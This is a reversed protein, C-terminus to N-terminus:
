YANKGSVVVYITRLVIYIDLVPTWNRLYELDYAIRGAMKDLTDTEGRFGHIQAWGTLGPKVKHRLMYGKILGRYEKNHGAAHPRPGVFSMDGLFINILQPLEDISTKRIFAGVRTVRADQAKTQTIVEGSAAASSTANTMSRFKYISFPEASVGWRNQRFLAPGPSDWKIWLAVIVLVPSLLILALASGFLDISRKIWQDLGNNPTDIVTFVSHNGIATMAQRIPKFLLFDHLYHVSSTTDLLQEIVLGFRYSAQTPLSILIHDLPHEALYEAIGDIRALIPFPAHDPIREPVRDEFFGMFQVNVFRQHVLDKAFALSSDTIAAIALRMAPRRQSPLTSLEVCVITLVAAGVAAAISFSILSKISIVASADLTFLALAVVFLFVGGSVFYQITRLRYDNSKLFYALKPRMLGIGLLIIAVGSWSSAGVGAPGISLWGFAFGLSLLLVTPAILAIVIRWIRSIPLFDLESALDVVISRRLLSAKVSQFNHCADM